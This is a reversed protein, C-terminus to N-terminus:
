NTSWRCFRRLALRIQGDSYRDRSQPEDVWGVGRIGLASTSEIVEARRNTVELQSGVWQEHSTGKSLTGASSLVPWPWFRRMSTPASKMAFVCDVFITSGLSRGSWWGGGDAWDAVMSPTASQSGLRSAAPVCVEGSRRRMTVATVWCAILVIARDVASERYSHSPMLSHSPRSRIM